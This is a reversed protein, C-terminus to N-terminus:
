RMAPPVSMKPMDPDDFVIWSSSADCDIGHYRCCNVVRTGELHRFLHMDTICVMEPKGGSKKKDSKYDSRVQIDRTTVPNSEITTAM